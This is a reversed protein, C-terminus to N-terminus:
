IARICTLVFPSTLLLLLMYPEIRGSGMVAISLLLVFISAIFSLVLETYMITKQDEQSVADARILTYMILCILVAASILVPALTPGQIKFSDWLTWTKKAM